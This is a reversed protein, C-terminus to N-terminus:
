EVNEDNIKFITTFVVLILDFTVFKESYPSFYKKLFFRWRHFYRAFFKINIIIGSVCIERADRKM